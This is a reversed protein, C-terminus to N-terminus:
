ITKRIILKREISNKHSKIEEQRHKIPKFKQCLYVSLLQFLFM